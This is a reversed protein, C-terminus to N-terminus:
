REILVTQVDNIDYAFNLSTEQFLNDVSTSTANVIGIPLGYPFGPAATYIIDGSQLPSNKAISTAKPDAGGVLLGDYGGKGIRVPMKFSPDFVTQVIASNPFVQVVSGVFIGQFTVTKGVAVGQASGANVLMENKFGFPYQVYVMARTEYEANKPLEDAVSQLPALAAQLVENQAALTVADGQATLKPSLWSRLRWGYSPEFFILILVIVVCVILIWINKKQSIM